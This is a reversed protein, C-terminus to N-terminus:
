ASPLRDQVVMDTSPVPAQGSVRAAVGDRLYVRAVHAGVATPRVHVTAPRDLAAAAVNTCDVTVQQMGVRGLVRVPRGGMEVDGLAAGLRRTWGLAGLLARALARLLVLPRRYPGAPTMDLGDAFGVPLVAVRTPRRLTEESGYGVTAGPQLERVQAPQVRLAFARRLGAPSGAVSRDGYLLNGVRVMDLRAEPLVLMASSAAAHRISFRLGAREADGVAHLFRQLQCRTATPEAGRAFHTYVGEWRVDGALGALAPAAAGLEAHDFGYRGMGTDCKVHAVAPAGHRAAAAALARAQDLSAVTVTLDAQLAASLDEPRPPTFVLVPAVIGCARLALGEAATSVGLGVAGADLATRGVEAAGHGYANAKVVALLRCGQPLMAAVTRVNEAIADLDVEVWSSGVAARWDSRDTRVGPVVVGGSGM